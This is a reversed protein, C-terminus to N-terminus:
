SSRQDAPEVRASANWEDGGDQHLDFYGSREPSAGGGRQRSNRCRQSAEVAQFDIGGNPCSGGAEEIGVQSAKVRNVKRRSQLEAALEVEEDAVVATKERKSLQSTQWDGARLLM